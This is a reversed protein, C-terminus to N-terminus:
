GVVLHQDCRFLYNHAVMTVDFLSWDPLTLCSHRVQPVLTVAVKEDIMCPGMKNFIDPKVMHDCDLVMIIDKLPIEDSKWVGPYIKQLIVHNLNASKGNLQGPQKVRDGVYFVNTHGATM